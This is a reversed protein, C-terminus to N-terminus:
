LVGGQEVSEGNSCLEKPAGFFRMHFLIKRMHFSDDEHGKDECGNNQGTAVDGTRDRRLTLVILASIRGARNDGLRNLGVLRGLFLYFARRDFSHALYLVLM